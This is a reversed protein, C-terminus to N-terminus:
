IDAANGTFGFRTVLEDRRDARGDGDTDELRWLSPPSATSVAGRSWLVGRPLPMRAAFVTSRDFRGDGDTDELRVIRNPPDKLLADARLNLGASEAVYLRGREDFCAMMPHEVLPPAAVLEVSYGEPVRLRAAPDGGPKSPTTEDGLAASGAAMALVVLVPGLPTSRPRTM